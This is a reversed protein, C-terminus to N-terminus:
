ITCSAVEQALNVALNEEVASCCLPMLMSSLFPYM